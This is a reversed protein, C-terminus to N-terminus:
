PAVALPQRSGSGMHGLTALGPSLSSSALGVAAASLAPACGVPPTPAAVGAVHTDVTVGAGATARRRGHAAPAPGYAGLFAPAGADRHPESPRCSDYAPRALLCGCAM